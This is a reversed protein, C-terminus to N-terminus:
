LAVKLSVTAPFGIIQPNKKELHVPLGSLIARWKCTLRVAGKRKIRSKKEKKKRELRAV